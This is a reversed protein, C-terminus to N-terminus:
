TATRGGREMRRRPESTAAAPEVVATTAVKKYMVTSYTWYVLTGYGTVM